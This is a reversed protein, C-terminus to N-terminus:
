NVSIPVVGNADQGGNSFLTGVGVGLLWSPVTLLAGILVYALASSIKADRGETKWAKFAHLLGYIVMFVGGAFAIDVGFDVVENTNNADDSSLVSGIGSAAFANTTMSVYLWVSTVGLTLIQGVRSAGGLAKKAINTVM